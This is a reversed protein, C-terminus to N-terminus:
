GWVLEVAIGLELINAASPAPCNSSGEHAFDFWYLGVSLSIPHGLSFALQDNKQAVSTDM